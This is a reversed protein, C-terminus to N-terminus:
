PISVKMTFSFRFNGMDQEFDKPKTGAKILKGISTALSDDAPNSFPVVTWESCQNTAFRTCTFKVPETDPFNVWNMAIRYGNGLGVVLPCLATADPPIDLMNVDYEHCKAIFRANVLASSVDVGFPSIPTSGGPGTGLVPDGFDILVSRTPTARFPQTELIWDGATQVVSRVSASDLYDGRGDSRVRFYTTGSTSVKSDSITSLAPLDKVAKGQAAITGGLASCLFLSAVLTRTTSM